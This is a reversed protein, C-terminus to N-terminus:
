NKVTIIWNCSDLQKKNLKILTRYTNSKVLSDMTKYRYQYVTLSDTLYIFIKLTKSEANELANLWGNSGRRFLSLTDKPKIYNEKYVEFHNELSDKSNLIEFPSIKYNTDNVIKLRIDGPDCSSLLIVSIKIIITKLLKM